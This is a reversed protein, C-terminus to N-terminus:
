QGRSLAARRLQRVVFPHQKLVKRFNAHIRTASGETIEGPLIHSYNAVYERADALLDEAARNSWYLDVAMGIQREACEGAYLDAVTRLLQLVGGEAGTRVIEFATQPASEGFKKKLLNWCRSLDFQMDPHRSAIGLTRCEIHCYFRALLVRYADWDPVVAPPPPFSNLAEDRYRDIRDPVDTINQILRELRTTM